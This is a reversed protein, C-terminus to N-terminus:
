MKKEMPQPSCFVLVQKPEQVLAVHDIEKTTGHKIIVFSILENSSLIVKIHLCSNQYITHQKLRMKASM